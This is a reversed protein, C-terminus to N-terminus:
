SRSPNSPSSSEPPSSPEGTPSHRATTPCHAPHQDQSAPQGRTKVSKRCTPSFSPAKGAGEKKANFAPPPTQRKNSPPQPPPFAFRLKAPRMGLRLKPVVYIVITQASNNNIRLATAPAHTPRHVPWARMGGCSRSCSPNQNKTKHPASNGNIRLATAPAHTPRHVPWGRM